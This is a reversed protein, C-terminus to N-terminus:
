RIWYGNTMHRTRCAIRALITAVCNECRVGMSVRQGCKTFTPLPPTLRLELTEIESADSFGHLSQGGYRMRDVFFSSHTPNLTCKMACVIDSNPTPCFTTIRDRALVVRDHLYISHPTRIPRCRGRGIAQAGRKVAM